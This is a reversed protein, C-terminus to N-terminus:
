GKSKYQYLFRECREKTPFSILEDFSDEFNHWFIWGKYQAIYDTKGNKTKIKVRTEMM